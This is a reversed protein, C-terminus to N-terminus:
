RIYPSKATPLPGFSQQSSETKRQFQALEQKLTQVEQKLQNIELSMSVAQKM